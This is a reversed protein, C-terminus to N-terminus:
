YFMYIVKMGYDDYLTIDKDPDLYKKIEELLLKKDSQKSDPNYRIFVCPLGLKSIIDYMRQEDCKYNAGRHKHEDVEVILNYYTCDFRIDPFLHGNTCESGVSKNHIFENNPLNEKLYKVVAIEKTKEYLKNTETPKCYNCLNGRTRWIQCSPCRNCLPCGMKKLHDTANIKFEGHNSNKCTIIIKKFAGTYETKSYDYKNDHITNVKEIFEPTTYVHQGSCTPCGYGKLHNAAKQLFENHKKCIIIVKESGKIYSTKSYDYKDGHVKKIREIFESQGYRYGKACKDCGRGREKGRGHIHNRANKIFEGHIPCLIIINDEMKTFITKSYDYKNNHIKNVKEIYEEQTYKIKGACLPCGRGNIHDASNQEFKNHIKCIIIIKEKTNTYKTESYDYKDGHTKIAKKIYDETTCSRTGHVKKAQEICIATQTDM